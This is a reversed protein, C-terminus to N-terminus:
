KVTLGHKLIVVSYYYTFSSSVELNVKRVVASSEAVWCVNQEVVISLPKGPLNIPSGSDKTKESKERRAKANWNFLENFLFREKHM